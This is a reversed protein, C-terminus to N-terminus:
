LEEDSSSDSDTSSQEDTNSEPESDTVPEESETDTDIDPATTKKKKKVILIIGVALVVAAAAAIGIYLLTRNVSKAAVYIISAGNELEFVIYSGDRTYSLPTLVGDKLTYLTGNDSPLMRVKLTDTYDSVLVTVASAIRDEDLGLAAADPTFPVAQMTQGDRFVGEALFLPEAEDTSITTVPRVYEGEITMSYYIASSDFDNWQWYMGDKDPVTPLSAISGGFPVEDTRVIEDEVVFTVDISRFFDPTDTLKVFKEYELFDTQGSFSFGDVGGITSDSYVNETIEGEAYGAISGTFEVTSEFHPMATCSAINKGQGAIGGVYRTASLNVRTSCERVSAASYGVIGGAYEDTASVEGVSSCRLALGYEMRGAIGGACSKSSAVAARNECDSVRAFVEYTGSGLMSSSINLKDERDFSVDLAVNGAIGGVNTDASVSGTNKCRTILCIAEDDETEDSIDSFEVTTNGISYILNVVSTSLSSMASVVDRMDEIVAEDTLVNALQESLTLVDHMNDGLQEKSDEDMDHWSDPIEIDPDTDEGDDKKDDSDDESGDDEPLSWDKEPIEGGIIDASDDLIDNMQQLLTRAETQTYDLDGLTSNLLAQVTAIQSQVEALESGTVDWSAYPEVQGIIGGVDKRGTISGSNTCDLIRGSQRGAVGGVNYGIHQYGVDGYNSCFQISSTNYGAIGGLDTIDIIEEESFTLTSIDFVTTDTNTDTSLEATNVSMRNESENILGDNQGAIGGSRHYAEITGTTSCSIIEAGGANWGAIGGANKQASISGGFTCNEIIGYNIGAVGGINEGNGTATITGAVNLDRVVGTSLVMRFLGITSGDSAFNLGIISHGQGDFTGALLPIPTFTCGTLNIDQTLLITKGVSWTDSTCNLALEELDAASSIKVIQSDADVAFATCSLSLLLLACLLAATMRRKM